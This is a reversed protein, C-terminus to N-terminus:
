NQEVLEKQVFNVQKTKTKTSVEEKSNKKLCSCCGSLAASLGIILLGFTLTNKM